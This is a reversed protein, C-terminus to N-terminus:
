KRAKYREYEVHNRDLIKTLQNYSCNIRTVIEKRPLKEEVFLRIAENEDIDNRKSFKGAFHIRMHCERCLPALNDPTNHERNRDIHHVAVLNDSGCIVCVRPLKMINYVVNRAEERNKNDKTSDKWQDRSKINM